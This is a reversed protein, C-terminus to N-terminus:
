DEKGTHSELEPKLDIGRLMMDADTDDFMSYCFFVHGKINTSKQKGAAV